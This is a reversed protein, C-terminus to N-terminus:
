KSSYCSIPIPFYKVIFYKWNWRVDIDEDVFFYFDILLLVTDIRYGTIRTRTGIAESSNATTCVYGCNQPIESISAV